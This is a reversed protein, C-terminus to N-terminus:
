IAGEQVSWAAGLDEPVARWHTLTKGDFIPVFSAEDPVAGCHALLHLGLLSAVAARCRPRSWAIM